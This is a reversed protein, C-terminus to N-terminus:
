QTECLSNEACGAEGPPDSHAKEVCSCVKGQGANRWRLGKLKVLQREAQLHLLLGDMGDALMSLQLPVAPVAGSVLCAPVPAVGALRVLM